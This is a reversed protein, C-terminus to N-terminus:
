ARIVEEIYLDLREVLNVITQNVKVLPRTPHDRDSFIIEGISQDSLKVMTGTQFLTVKRIFTQVLGPDVKGFSKKHLQELVLYPSEKKRYNRDSTMAHFMDAIAVVKAYLHIKDGTIGLPYGSGDLREHHQLACLKVGENIGSINKLIQYGAVVHKKIEELEQHTLKDQKWIVSQDVAFSGIDHLLGSIGIPIHDNKPLDHWVALKYSTLATMISNHYLYDEMEFKRPKFSLPKYSDIYQLLEEFLSRIEMIPISLGPAAFPFVKKLLLLLEDYIAFFDRDLELPEQESRYVDIQVAKVLFAQLIEIDRQDIRKGKPLLINGLPTLVDEALLEDQKLQSTPVLM